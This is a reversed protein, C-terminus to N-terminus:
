SGAGKHYRVYEEGKAARHRKKWLMMLGFTLLMMVPPASIDDPVEVVPVYPIDYRYHWWWEYHYTADTTPIILDNIVLSVPLTIFREDISIGLTADPGNYASVPIAITVDTVAVERGPERDDFCDKACKIAVVPRDSRDTVRHKARTVSQDSSAPNTPPIRSPQRDCMTVGILLAVILVIIGIWARRRTM